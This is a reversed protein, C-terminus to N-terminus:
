KTTITIDIDTRRLERMVSPSAGKSGGCCPAQAEATIVEAPVGAMVLAAKVTEARKLALKENFKKSGTPDTRGAVVIQKAKKIQSSAVVAEVEQRGAKDLHSWGWPFHVKFNEVQVAPVVVPAAAKAVVPPSPLVKKTRQPCRNTECFVYDTNQNSGAQIVGLKGSGVVEKEDPVPTSACAVMLLSLSASSLLKNLSVSRPM